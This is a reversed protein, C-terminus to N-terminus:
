PRKGGLKNETGARLRGINGHHRAIVLCGGFAAALLLAAPPRQILWVAFPFAAAGVISGLSVYRTRWVVLVFVIVTALVALPALYLFAGLFSAVAKGGQFKLLVPFAHGIMVAAAAASTWEIAGGTLAGTLWVAFFGKAIDLLLTVIGLNRGATRLVNTAGINGSGKARVDEGTKLRVLIYGFPIGGILYALALATWGNM